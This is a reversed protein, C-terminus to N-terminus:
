RKVSGTYKRYEDWLKERLEPDKEKMAAERIQRAVVDDDSGDPIDAPVNASNSATHEFDGKRGSGGGATSMGSGSSSDDATGEAGAGARAPLPTGYESGDESGDGGAATGNEMAVAGADARGGGSEEARAQNREREGLMAGDFRALSDNLERNLKELEGDGSGGATVGEAAARIEAAAAGAAGSGASAASGSAAAQAGGGPQGAAADGTTAASGTAAEELGPERAGRQMAELAADLVEQESTAADARTEGSEGGAAAASDELTVQDSPTGQQTTASQPAGADAGTSDPQGASTSAHRRWQGPEGRQTHGARRGGAFSLGVHGRTSSQAPSSSATPPSAPPQPTSPSTSTTKCGALALLLVLPAVLLTRM